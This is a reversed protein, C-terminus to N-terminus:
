TTMDIDPISIRHKRSTITLIQPTYAHRTHTPMVMATCCILHLNFLPCPWNNLYYGFIVYPKHMHLHLHMHMASTFMHLFSVL